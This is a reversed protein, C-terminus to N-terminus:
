LRMLQATRTWLIACDIRKDPYIQALAGRYAAMQRLLGEPVDEARDPVIANSKYDVVLVHDPRVLLRDITGFLRQGEHDATVAVETLADPAFIDKLHPATILAAAEALLTDRLGADPILAAAIAPWEAADIVPLHELLAHLWTGRQRADPQEGEADGLITKAGSLDSPSITKEVPPPPAAPRIAWDPLGIPAGLEAPVSVNEATPWDGFQYSLGGAADATAGLDMAASRILDYWAPPADDSKQAALKGAAAVILWSQARTLAVYLLRLSEAKALASREGQAFAMAAPSEAGAMRWVATGALRLVEDRDRATYDATDPLIVIPAELGKAGHVTMVRIKQGASDMQRKIDVDDSQLWTLFGTLSPVDSREYALAQALLADIGDEAEAGLRALLKRRGDHRTLLREILDFPRLYDAQDRLDQLIARTEEHGEAGRLAAWLYGKRPQALAYLQAETWGFLPSRLAEALALDDEPMALFALTASIDKVALEGGLHLRDAGAIPLGAAKCARIVEAFLPSRRRVLVLFDGAHAPRPGEETPIATGAELIAKIREAVRRGLQAAHHEGTILDVPNTWDEDEPTEGAPIPPWIEVRGPMADRFAIHRSAGGLAAHAANPFTRDVLSLIAPSSRFSYELQMSQFPADILALREAFSDRMRAFASVDAGQFSYISQKQDGVVFITREVDRAGQGSTFEQALLEIVKWQDPSTDQAEDVLIHDIGGDLRFLVWQAVSPDTLLAKARAILDDFDLAGRAQKRASYLPLFAAAFRHLTATKRAAQLGIRLPRAAEVRLMLANLRDQLHALKPQTAKTAIAELRATYSKGEVKSEGFLLASELDSLTAMGPSELRISVIKAGTKADNTSGGLLINGADALLEAEGGLLVADLLAAETMDPPLGFLAACEAPGLPPVFQAANRAIEATLQAFDEGTYLSALDSVAEPALHDAMEEVIEDRLLTAARDDMETFQPSVGAEMPFRRLLTACFSHITQIRLGGPTEIARAFLRRAEALTTQSVDGAIGLDVLAKRLDAEPKMAWEGLRRFLRNQMETAAAKTYTLCLIRAPEVGALLLRAVRDTLVRTKGSGANAALWTSHHPDAAQVQRESAANRIM